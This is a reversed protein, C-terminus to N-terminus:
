QPEMDNTSLARITASESHRVQRGVALLLLFPIMPLRFRPDEFPLTLVFLALIPWIVFFHEPWCQWRAAAILRCLVTLALAAYCAGLVIAILSATLSSGGFLMSLPVSGEGVPSSLVLGLPFVLMKAGQTAFCQVTSWPRDALLDLGVSWLLSSATFPDVGQAKGFNLKAYILQERQTPTLPGYRDEWKSKLRQDIDTRIQSLTQDDFRYRSKNQSFLVVDVVKHYAFSPGTQPTLSLHGAVARNRVLYPALVVSTGAFCVLALGIRHFFVSELHGEHTRATSPGRPSFGAARQPLGNIHSGSLTRSQHRSTALVGLWALPPLLLGIPRVLVAIGALLGLLASRRYTWQDRSPYVWAWAALLLIFVFLTEALLWLSYYLRFPDVAWLATALIAWRPNTFRRILAFALPVTAVALLQQAFLLTLTDDGFLRIVIALFLPYGPTRWTHTYDLPKGVSDLPVFRGQWALGRAFAVYEASDASQYAYATLSGRLSGIAALAAAQVLLALLTLLCITTWQRSKM